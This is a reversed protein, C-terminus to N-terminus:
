LSCAEDKKANEGVFTFLLEQKQGYPVQKIKLREEESEVLKRYVSIELDLGQKEELLKAFKGRQIKIKEQVANVEQEKLEIKSWHENEADNQKIKMFNIEEEKAKEDEKLRNLRFEMNNVMSEAELADAKEEHNVRIQDLYTSKLFNTFENPISYEEQHSFNEQFTSLIKKVEGLNEESVCSASRQSEQEKSTDHISEYKNQIDKMLLNCKILVSNKKETVEQFNSELSTKAEIKDRLCNVCRALEKETSEKRKSLIEIEKKLDFEKDSLAAGEHDVSKIKKRLEQNEQLHQKYTATMMEVKKMMDEKEKTLRDVTEKCTQSIKESEKNTSEEVLKMHTTLRKNNGHIKRVRDIYATLKNNLHTLSLVEDIPALCSEDRTRPFNEWASPCVAKVSKM